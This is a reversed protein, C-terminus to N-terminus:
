LLIWYLIFAEGCPRETLKSIDLFLEELLPPCAYFFTEACGVTKM